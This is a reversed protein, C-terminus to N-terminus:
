SIDGAWPENLFGEPRPRSTGPELASRLPGVGSGLALLREATNAYHWFRASTALVRM